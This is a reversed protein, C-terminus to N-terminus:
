KTRAADVVQAKFQDDSEIIKFFSEIFEHAETYESEIAFDKKYSDMVKFMADKQALFTERAKQFEEEPRKFGRYKREKISNIGLTPNVVAYSPDIFGSMDFDYPLPIIQKEIYLLKGNHQYAVSFDTNGIMFQFMANIISKNHDMALPHIFREFVKGENRKAVRKDDEIFFGNLTEVVPKKKNMDTFEIKARRTKFHYPTVLEYLKYTMLEKLINDNKDKERLCPLVLKLKKQGEFITEKTQKKKLDVKIPPYYCTSRRFNGRARVGIDMKQWQEEEKYEMAIDFYITDSNSKRLKKPSFSLKVELPNSTSFLDPQTEQAFIISGCLFLISFLKM